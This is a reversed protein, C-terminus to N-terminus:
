ACRRYCCLLSRDRAVCRKRRATAHMRATLCARLSPAAAPACRKIPPLSVWSTKSLATVLSRGDSCGKRRKSSIISVPPAHPEPVPQAYTCVRDGRIENGTLCRDMTCVRDGRIENGTLCRDMPTALTTVADRSYISARLPTYRRSSGLQWIRTGGKRKARLAFRPPAKKVAPFRFSFECRACRATRPM